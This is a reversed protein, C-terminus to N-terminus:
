NKLTSIIVAAALAADFGQEDLQFETCIYHLQMIGLKKNVRNNEIGLLNILNNKFIFEAAQQINLQQQKM